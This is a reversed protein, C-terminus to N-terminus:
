VCSYLKFGVWGSIKACVKMQEVMTWEYVRDRIERRYVQNTMM